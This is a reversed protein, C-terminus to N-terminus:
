GKKKWHENAKLRPFYHDPLPVPLPTPLNEFEDPDFWKRQSGKKQYTKLIGEEIYKTLHQNTKFGLIQSAEKQGILQDEPISSM